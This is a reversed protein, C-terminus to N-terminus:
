SLLRIIESIHNQVLLRAAPLERTAAIVLAEEISHQDYPDFSLSPVCVDYTYPLDAAIVKCGYQTAEILGMGFSEARSPFIVLGSKRYLHIVEEKGVFGMNVVPYGQAIRDNILLLIENFNESVTLILKGKKYQDYFSCFAAILMRHNKYAVATGPYFFSYSKRELNETVAKRIGPFFPLIFIEEEGIQHSQALGAKMIKSQVLWYNTNKTLRQFIKQKIRFLLKQRRNFEQPIRLYVISHFYTYVTGEIKINPPLNGFCFIKTFSNKNKRYFFYRNVFGPPHFRIINSPKISYNQSRLRSDLLYFVTLDTKELEEILYDLLVKGGGTNVYIADILVM